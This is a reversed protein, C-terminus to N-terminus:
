KILYYNQKNRNHSCLFIFNTKTLVLLSFSRFEVTRFSMSCCSTLLNFILGQETDTPHSNVHPNGNIVISKKCCSISTETCFHHCIAKMFDGLISLSEAPLEGLMKLKKNAYVFPFM